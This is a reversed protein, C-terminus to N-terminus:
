LHCHALKPALISQNETWFLRNFQQTGQDHGHRRHLTRRVHPAGQARPEAAEAGPLAGGDRGEHRVQHEDINNNININNFMLTYSMRFNDSLVSTGM